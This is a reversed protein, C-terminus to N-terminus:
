SKTGSRIGKTKTQKKIEAEKVATQITEAEQKPGAKEPSKEQLEEDKNELIIRIHSTRKLISHARGRAIAKYRKFAPGKNVVIEKIILSDENIGHNNKANAIASALVNKLPKASANPIFGLINIANQPKMKKIKDTVLRVKIPSIRINKATAHILM